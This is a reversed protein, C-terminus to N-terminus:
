YGMDHYMKETGQYLYVITGNGAFEYKLQLNELFVEKYETSFGELRNLTRDTLLVYADDYNEPAYWDEHYLYAVNEWLDEPDGSFNQIAYTIGDHSMTAIMSQESFADTYVYRIGDKKLQQAIQGYFASASNLQAYSYRFLYNYNIISIGVVTLILLRKLVNGPIRCGNRDLLYVVCFTVMLYWCFFYISRVRIVLVGACAVALLSIAFFLINLAIVSPKKEICDKLSLVLAATVIGVSLVAVAFRFASFVDYPPILGIYEALSSVSVIVNEWVGPQTEQLIDSQVFVGNAELLKSTLLGLSNFVLTGLAFLCIKKCRPDFRRKGTLLVQCLVLACLPLNLVLMERLSQMGLAFNLFSVATLMGKNVSADQLYRNYVGLTLFIGIIYCAYYSAMTYFLQLGELGKHATVGIRMGGILVLLGVFTSRGSQFPRVCWLFSGMVLLTMLCSAVALSAYTDGVLPYLLGALVPTAVVYIQNGFHWGDPFLTKESWMYKALVSDSYMDFDNFARGGFNVSFIGVTYMLVLVVVMAAILMDLKKGAKIM